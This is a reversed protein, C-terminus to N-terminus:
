KLELNNRLIGSVRALEDPAIIQYSIDNIMEGTGQMQVQEINGAAAKYKAQIDYMNDFTLNTKMNNQMTNLIEKYNTLTSFTAAKKVVAEIVQRQRGQRGYDGTPDEYRMRSFALAQKGDLHMPGKTFKIGDQSFDLPSNIDIGGIADVIDKIGQMNVEIYYDIPINLLKQVTNVSMSVGGFAYAHNIKDT